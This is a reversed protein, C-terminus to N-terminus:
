NQNGIRIQDRVTRVWCMWNLCLHMLSLLNLLFCNPKMPRQLSGWLGFLITGSVPLVRPDVRARLMLMTAKWRCPEEICKLKSPKWMWKGTHSCVMPPQSVFDFQLSVPHFSHLSSNAHITTKLVATFCFKVSYIPSIKPLKNHKRNM